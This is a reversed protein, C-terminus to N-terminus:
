HAPCPVPNHVASTVAHRCSCIIAPSTLYLNNSNTPTRRAILVDAASTMLKLNNLGVTELWKRFGTDLLLHEPQLMCDSNLILPYVTSVHMVTFLRGTKTDSCRSVRIKQEFSMTDAQLSFKFEVSSVPSDLTIVYSCSITATTM